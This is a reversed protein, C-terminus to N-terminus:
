ISLELQFDLYSNLKNFQEVSYIFVSFCIHGSINGFVFAEHAENFHKTRGFDIFALGCNAGQGSFYM